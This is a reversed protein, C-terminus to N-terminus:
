RYLLYSVSTADVPILNIATICWFHASSVVQRSQQDARDAPKDAPQQSSTDAKPTFRKFKALAQELDESEFPKLIYDIGNNKFATIGHDNYATVFIVPTNIEVQKFIDFSMGDGLNIDMFVLDYNATNAKFWEVADEVGTLMAAIKLTDDITQLLHALNRATVPEDEILVINLDKM